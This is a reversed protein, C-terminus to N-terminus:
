KREVFDTPRTGPMVARTNPAENCVAAPQFPVAHPNLTSRTHAVKANQHASTIQLSTRKCATGLAGHKIAIEQSNSRSSNEGAAVHQGVKTVDAIAGTQEWSTQLPSACPAFTCESKHWPGHCTARTTEPLKTDYGRISAGHNGDFSGCRKIGHQTGQAASQRQDTGSQNRESKRQSKKEISKDDEIGLGGGSPSRTDLDGGPSSGERSHDSAFVIALVGSMALNSM